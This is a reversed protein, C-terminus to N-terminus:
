NSSGNLPTGGSYATSCLDTVNFRYKDNSLAFGSLGNVVFNNEFYSPAPADSFVIADTPNGYAQNDRVFNPGQGNFIDILTGGSSTSLILNRQVTCGSGGAIQVAIIAYIRMDQVTIATYAQGGIGANVSVGYTFNEITGNKITVGSRNAQTFAVGKTGSASNTAILRHGAFDLTVDSATITIANAAGGYSLNKGLAYTGSASITHPVSNIITQAHSAQTTLFGLATIIITLVKIQSTLYPLTPAEPCRVFRSRSIDFSDRCSSSLSLGNLRFCHFHCIPFLL